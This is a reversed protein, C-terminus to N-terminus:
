FLPRRTRDILEQRQQAVWSAFLPRGMVDHERERRCLCTTLTHDPEELRQGDCLTLGRLPCTQTDGSAHPTLM